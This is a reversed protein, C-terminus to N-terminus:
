VAGGLIIYTNKTATQKLRITQGPAPTSAAAPVTVGSGAIFRAVGTNGPQVTVSYEFGYPMDPPVEFDQTTNAALITEGKHSMPSLAGIGTKGTTRFEKNPTVVNLEVNANNTVEMWGIPYTTNIVLNSARATVTAKRAGISAYMESINISGRFGFTYLSTVNGSIELDWWGLDINTGISSASGCFALGPHGGYTMVISSSNQSATRAAGYMSESLQVTKNADNKSVVYHTATPEWWNVAGAKFQFAGGVVMLDYHAPNVFGVDASTNSFIMTMDIGQANGGFRNVQGAGMFNLQNCQSGPSIYIEVGRAAFSSNFIFTRDRWTSNGALLLPETGADGPRHPIDFAYRIGGNPIGNRGTMNGFDCQQFNYLHIGWDSADQYYLDNFSCKVAGMINKAGIKMLGAGGVSAISDFKCNMLSNGGFNNPPLNAVDAFNYVISYVGPSNVLRTGGSTAQIDSDPIDGTPQKLKPYGKTSINSAWTTPVTCDYDVPAFLVTGPRGTSNILNVATQMGQANYPFAVIDTAEASIGGLAVWTGLVTDVLVKFIRTSKVYAVKWLDEPEYGTSLQLSAESDFVFSVIQNVENPM